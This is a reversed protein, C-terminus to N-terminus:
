EVPVAEPQVSGAVLALFQWGTVRACRLFCGREWATGGGEKGGEMRVNPHEAGLVGACQHALPQLARQRPQPDERLVAAM